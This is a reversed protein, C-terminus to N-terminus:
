LKVDLQALAAQVAPNNVRPSSRRAAIDAQNAVLEADVAQRGQNLAKALVTLEDLKQLAFALSAAVEEPLKQESALDVPVHLLSCSPALWLREGLQKAIPEIWGLLASLDTKWINRGNIVGLSLVSDPPLDA